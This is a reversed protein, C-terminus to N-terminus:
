EIPTESGTDVPPATPIEKQLKQLEQEAGTDTYLMEYISKGEPVDKTPSPTNIVINDYSYESTTKFEGFGMEEKRLLYKSNDFWFIRTAEKNEPDTEQYKYCTIGGASPGCAETGLQKYQVAKKKLLEDKFSEPTPVVEKNTPTSTPGPKAVEKWWKNDKYDKVYTTDGMMIMQSIEKGNKDETVTRFNFKDGKMQVENVMTGEGRGSSLSKTRFSTQNAQAVFHKRVLPDTVFEFDKESAKPLSNVLPLPLSGSSKSLFFYGGGGLLVLLVIVAIIKGNM